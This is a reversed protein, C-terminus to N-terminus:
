LFHMPLHSLVLDDHGMHLFVILFCVFFGKSISYAVSSISRMLYMILVDAGMSSMWCRMTMRRSEYRKLWVM